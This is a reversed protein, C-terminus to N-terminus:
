QLDAQDPPDARAEAQPSVKCLQTAGVERGHVLHLDEVLERILEAGSWTRKAQSRSLHRGAGHCSSGFSTALAGESAALLFSMAAFPVVVYRRRNLLHILIPLAVLAAGWLMWPSGFALSV